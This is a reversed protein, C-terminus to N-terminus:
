GAPTAQARVPLWDAPLVGAPTEGPLPPLWRFALAEAPRGALLPRVDAITHVLRLTTAIQLDAANPRDGDLVGEAIWRDVRDLHAPLAQLDARVAADTADNLRREIAVVLPAIRTIVPRPLKPSRQGEQYDYMAQPARAFAPWLIRRAIPQLVEDGWREAEDIEPGGYLPPEPVRRELARLIARSGQVKEGDEFRIGPVTRGGFLPRMLLAHSPPPLEVRKYAVGKLELAKEVTACPHSGHVVYLRAPM